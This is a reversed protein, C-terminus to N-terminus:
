MNTCINLCSVNRLFHSNRLGNSFFCHYICTHLFYHHRTRVSLPNWLVDHHFLFNSTCIISTCNFYISNNRLIFNFTCFPCTSNCSSKRWSWRYCWTKIRSSASDSLIASASSSATARTRWFIIVFLIFIRSIFFLTIM